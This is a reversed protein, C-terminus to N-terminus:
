HSDPIETNASESMPENSQMDLKAMIDMLGKAHEDAPNIELVATFYGKSLEYNGLKYYAVGLAYLVGAEQPALTLAQELLIVAKQNNGLMIGASGLYYPVRWDKDSTEPINELEQIAETYKKQQYLAIGQELLATSQGAQESEKAANWYFLAVAISALLLVLTVFMITPRSRM